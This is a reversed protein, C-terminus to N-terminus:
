TSEAIIDLIIEVDHYLTNLSGTGVQIRSYTPRLLWGSYKNWIGSRSERATLWFEKDLSEITQFMGQWFSMGSATMVRSEIVIKPEGIAACPRGVGTKSQPEPYRVEFTGELTGQYASVPVDLWAGGSATKYQFLAM